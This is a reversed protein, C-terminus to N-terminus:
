RNQRSGGARAILNLPLGFEERWTQEAAEMQGRDREHDMGSLHLVGHLMLIRLEDIRDHGFELAQAEAREASIIMEGVDGTSDHSPFSLVDTPYDHGLYSQNLRRLERDDSIVCLFPRRNVVRESLLNAFSRLSRKEEASFQLEAPLARFLVTANRVHM